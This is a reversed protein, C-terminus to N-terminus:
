LKLFLRQMKTIIILTNYYINTVDTNHILKVYYGIYVSMSNVNHSLNIFLDVKTNNSLFM